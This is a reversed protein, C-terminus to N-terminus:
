FRFVFGLQAGSLYIDNLLKDNDFNYQLHRYALTMSFLKSFHYGIGGYVQWSWENNIGRALPSQWSM